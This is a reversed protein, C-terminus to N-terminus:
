TTSSTWEPGQLRPLNTNVYLDGGMNCPFRCFWTFWGHRASFRVVTRTPHTPSGPVVVQEVGLGPVSFTHAHRAYNVITLVVRGPQLLLESGAMRDRDDLVKLTVHQTPTAAVPHAAASVRGGLWVIVSVAVVAATLAVLVALARM